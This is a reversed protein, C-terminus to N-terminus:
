FSFSLQGASCELAYTAPGVRRYFKQLVKRIQAKWHVTKTPRKGEIESYIQQLSATGGLNALAKEIVEGWLHCSSRNGLFLFRYRKNLSLMECTEEYLFMGSLIAKREKIFRAFMLPTALGQFMNRPMLDHKLSWGKKQYEMVTDATQFFYVPLLLGAEQSYDLTEYARDLLKNVLGMEFPPNGLFLTPKGLFEVETFDGEIITRGTNNQAQVVLDHDVEIGYANVHDPLAMLFRGDGCGCDVVLDQKSLSPYYHQVIREAAWVPVFFQNLDTSRMM